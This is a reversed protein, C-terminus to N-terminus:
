SRPEYHSARQSADALPGSHAEASRTSGQGCLSSALSSRGVRQRLWLQMAKLWGARVCALGRAQFWIPAFVEKLMM